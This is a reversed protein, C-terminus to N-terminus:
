CLQQEQKATIIVEYNPPKNKRWLLMLPTLFQHGTVDNWNRHVTNLPTSTLVRASECRSQCVM